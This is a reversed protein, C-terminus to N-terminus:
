ATAEEELEPMSALEAAADRRAGVAEDSVVRGDRFTVVRHGYEAIDHEHTILIITIGNERNLRQLIEMIEVSTRSDLNGTPEDALLIEPDNVLARAIAVRQQQGGSLQNPTHHAREGLGVAELLGLAKRHREQASTPKGDYLLPLEVNELASTRPLLNFNQFVFGIKRNRLVARRDRDFGSVDEGELFYQGGTPRDLLGVINMFTSKGSGSAGVVTLFTGAAIEIDVGRLAHVTVDGLTYSKRLGVIRILPEKRSVPQSSM